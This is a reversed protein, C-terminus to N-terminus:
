PRIIIVHLVSVSKRKDNNVADVDSADNTTSM